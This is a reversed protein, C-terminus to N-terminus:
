DVKRYEKELALKYGGNAIIKALSEDVIPLCNVDIYHKNLLWEYESHEKEHEIAHLLMIRKGVHRQWKKRDNGAGLRDYHHLHVNTTKGTVFCKGKILFTFLQQRTFVHEFNIIWEHVDYDNMIMYNILFNIFNNADSMTCKDAKLSFSDIENASIFLMKMEYYTHDKSIVLGNKQKEIENILAFAFKRQKETILRSDQLNLRCDLEVGKKALNYMTNDVENKHSTVYWILMDSDGKLYAKM